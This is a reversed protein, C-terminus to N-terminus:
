NLTKQQLAEPLPGEATTQQWDEYPFLEDTDKWLRRLTSKDAATATRDLLKRFLSNFRPDNM